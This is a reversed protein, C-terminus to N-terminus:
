GGTYISLFNKHTVTKSQKSLSSIFWTCKCNCVLHNINQPTINWIYISTTKKERKINKWAVRPAWSDLTDEWLMEALNLTKSTWSRTKRTGAQYGKYELFAIRRPTEQLDLGSQAFLPSCNWTVTLTQYSQNLGM